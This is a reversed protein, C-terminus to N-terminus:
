PLVVSVSGGEVKPKGGEPNVALRGAGELSRPPARGAGRFTVLGRNWSSRDESRSGPALSAAGQPGRSLAVLFIASGTAVAVSGFSDRFFQNVPRAGRVLNM